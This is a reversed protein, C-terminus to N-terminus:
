APNELRDDENMLAEGLSVHPRTAKAKNRVTSGMAAKDEADDALGDLDQQAKTVTEQAARLESLEPSQDALPSEDLTATVATVVLLSLLLRGMPSRFRGM